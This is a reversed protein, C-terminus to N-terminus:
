TGGTPSSPQFLDTLLAAIRGAAGLHREIYGFARGAAYDHAQGDLLWSLLVASVQGADEVAAAGGVDIIDGAARANHHRPGFVVPVRAAAPELVSHLGADHFGGGVYAVDAVTYLHALIGVRDVVVADVGDVSEALEVEGLAATNWRKSELTARLADVQRFDPEHPALVVRLDPVALRITELAPLLVADDAPWTSGAVLTPRRDEHFPRLYWAGPDAGRARAAASDIGPDGTIRVADDPVGLARFGEEDAPTNACVLSLRQWTPRLFTRALWRHRGAGPPVAGAVMAVRIDRAAAEEVLVPWVETKTFAVVDPRLVELVDGDPRPLDWPLYDSVDAGITAALGEASPSFHTYAAQLSPLRDGLAELVARAQLGEGVSPAHLWIGPRDVARHEVAWAALRVHASRRGRLGRALKSGRGDLVPTLIRLFHQAGRYVAASARMRRRYVSVSMGSLTTVPSPGCNPRYM